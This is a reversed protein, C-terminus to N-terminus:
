EKIKLKIRKETNPKKKNLKDIKIKDIQFKQLYDLSSYGTGFDDISIIIGHSKLSQVVKLIYEPSYLILSETIELELKNSPLNLQDILRIINSVFNSQKFQKQSLNVSVSLDTNERQWQKLQKCASELVWENLPLILRTEEALRVIEAPNIEGFEKSHWRLLAEVGVISKTIIDMKPQYHLTFENNTLALSIANQRAMKEKARSTMEPTCFQYNNRGSEKAKYLALDANKLLTKIDAGDYPYVSIGQSASVFFEHGKILLPRQLSKSIKRVITAIHDVHAVETLVIVFEDGGVRAIIDTNRVCNKLRAAVAVLIADGADHGMTDNIDKFHDLDIFIVSMGNHQRKAKELAEHMKADLQNRNALGTLNDHYALEKLQEEAKKESTINQFQLIFHQPKGGKSIVLSMTTLMWVVDKNKTFYRQVSQFTKINGDLMEAIFTKTKHLDDIQVIKDLKMELLENQSYHFLKSLSQNVDIFKLNLDVIAMGTASSEFVSKFNTEFNDNDNSKSLNRASHRRYIFISLYSAAIISLCSVFIMAILNNM